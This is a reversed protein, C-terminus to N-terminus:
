FFDVANDFHRSYFVHPHNAFMPFQVLLAKFVTAESMTKLISYNDLGRWALRM